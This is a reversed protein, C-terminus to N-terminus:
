ISAINQINTEEKTELASMLDPLVKECFRAKNFLIGNIADLSFGNAYYDEYTMAIPGYLENYANVMEKRQELTLTQYAVVLANDLSLRASHVCWGANGDINIDDPISGCVNLVNQIIKTELFETKAFIIKPVNFKYAFVGLYDNTTMPLSDEQSCAKKYLEELQNSDPTFFRPM